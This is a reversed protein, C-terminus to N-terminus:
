AEKLPIVSKALPPGDGGMCKMCLDGIPRGTAEALGERGLHGLSDAGLLRAREEINPIDRAILKGSQDVGFTCYDVIPPSVVRLHAEAVGAERFLGIIARSTIGHVISDDVVVVRKGRVLDELIDYMDEVNVRNNSPEIYNRGVYRNKIMAEELRVRSGLVKKAEEVYGYAAPRGSDPVPVVVVERNDDVGVPFQKWLIRGAHRRTEYISKGEFTSSVAQLYVDEFVCSSHGKPAVELITEGKEDIQVTEGPMIDRYGRYGKIKKFASTEVAVVYGWPNNEPGLYGLMLPRIGYPDRSAVVTKGNTLIFAWGGEFDRQANILKQGLSEGKEKVIANFAVWSDSDPFDGGKALSGHKKEIEDTNTLNGHHGFWVGDLNFPQINEKHNSGGSTPYRTHLFALRAGPVDPLNHGQEFVDRTWGLGKVKDFEEGNSFMMGASGQARHQLPMAIQNFSIKRIDLGAKIGADTLSVIALGCESQIERAEPFHIPSFERSM